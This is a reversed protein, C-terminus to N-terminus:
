RRPGGGFDILPHGLLGLLICILVFVLLLVFAVRVIKWAMPAPFNSEAYNIAFWLLAVVAVLIIAGFVFWVLSEITIVSLM